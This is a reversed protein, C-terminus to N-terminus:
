IYRGMASMRRIHDDYDKGNQEDERRIENIDDELDDALASIEETTLAMSWYGYDVTAHVPKYDDDLTVHLVSDKRKITCQHTM